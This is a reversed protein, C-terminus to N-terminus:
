AGNGGMNGRVVKLCAECYPDPKDAGAARGGGAATGKAQTGAAAVAAGGGTVATEDRAAGSSPAAAPGQGHKAALGKQLAPCLGAECLRLLLHPGTPPPARVLATLTLLLKARLIPSGPELLNLLSPCSPHLSPPPLPPSAMNSLVARTGRRLLTLHCASWKNATKVTARVGGALVRTRLSASPLSHSLSQSSSAPTRPLGKSSRRTLLRPWHPRAPQMAWLLRSTRHSLSIANTLPLYAVRKHIRSSCEIGKGRSRGAGEGSEKRRVVGPTRFSEPLGSCLPEAAVGEVDGEAEGSGGEGGGQGAQGEM